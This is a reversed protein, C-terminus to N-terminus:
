RDALPCYARYLKGKKETYQKDRIFIDLSVKWLFSLCVFNFLLM